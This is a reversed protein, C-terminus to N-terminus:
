RASTLSIAHDYWDNHLYRTTTGNSKEIKMIPYVYNATPINTTNTGVLTGNIYFEVSTGASNVRIEFVMYTLDTTIGTNVATRAGGNATVGEWRGSNVNYNYRFYAGNAQDGAGTTDGYGFYVTYNEALTGLDQVAIRFRLRLSHGLGFLVNGLQALSARGTGTSGTQLSIAGIVRETSNIGYTSNGYAAAAGAVFSNWGHTFLGNTIIWDFAEYYNIDTDRFSDSFLASDAIDEAFQQLVLGSVGGAAANNFPGGTNDYYAKFGSKTYVSM